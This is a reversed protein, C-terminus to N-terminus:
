KKNKNSKFSSKIAVYKERDPYTDQNSTYTLDIAQYTSHAMTSDIRLMKKGDKYYVFYNIPYDM